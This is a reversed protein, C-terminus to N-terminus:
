DFLIVVEFTMRPETCHPCVYRAGSPLAFSRGDPLSWSALPYDGSPTDLEQVAPSDYPIVDSQCDPCRPPTDLLEITAVRECVVCLAPALCSRTFDGMGAGLASRGEYGCPCQAELVIGM